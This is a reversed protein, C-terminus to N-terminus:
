SGLHQIRGSRINAAFRRSHEDRLLALPGSRSGPGPKAQDCLPCSLHHRGPLSIFVRGSRVPQLSGLLRPVGCPILGVLCGNQRNAPLRGPRAGHPTGDARLRLNQPPCPAPKRRVDSWEREKRRCQTEASRGHAKRTEGRNSHQAGGIGM